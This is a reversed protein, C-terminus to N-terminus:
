VPQFNYLWYKFGPWSSQLAWLVTVGNLLHSVQPSLSHVVIGVSMRGPFLLGGHRYRIVNGMYIRMTVVLREEGRQKGTEAVAFEQGESGWLSLQALALKCWGAHM